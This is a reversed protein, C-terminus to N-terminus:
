SPVKYKLVCTGSSKQQLTVKVYILSCIQFLNFSSPCFLMLQAAASSSEGRFSVKRRM